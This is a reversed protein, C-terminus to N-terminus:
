AGGHKKLISEEAWKEYEGRDGYDPEYNMMLHKVEINMEKLEEETFGTTNEQTFM